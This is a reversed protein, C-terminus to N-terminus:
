HGREAKHSDSGQIGEFRALEFDYGVLQDGFFEGLRCSYRLRFGHPKGVTEAGPPRREVGRMTQGRDHIRILDRNNIFSASHLPACM